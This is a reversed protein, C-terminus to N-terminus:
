ANIVWNVKMWMQNYLKKYGLRVLGEECFSPGVYVPNGTPTYGMIGYRHGDARTIIEFCGTWNRIIRVMEKLEIKRM